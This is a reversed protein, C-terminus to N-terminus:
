ASQFDQKTMCAFGLDVIISVSDGLTFSELTVYKPNYIGLDVSLFGEFWTM